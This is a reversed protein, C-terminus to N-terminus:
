RALRLHYQACRHPFGAFHDGLHEPDPAPALAIGLTTERCDFLIASLTPNEDWASAGLGHAGGRLCRGCSRCVSAYPRQGRLHPCTVGCHQPYVTGVSQFGMQDFGELDRAIWKKNLRKFVDDPQM